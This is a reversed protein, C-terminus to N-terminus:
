MRNGLALKAAAGDVLFYDVFNRTNSEIWGDATTYLTYTDMMFTPTPAVPVLDLIRQSGSAYHDAERNLQAPLTLEASHGQTYTILARGDRLLELIWRYYSRGNMSRLRSEQLVGSRIDAILNVSNQHDSYIRPVAGDDNRLILALVHGMLEGHLITLNRGLLQVVLTAPGTVAATIHRSEKLTTSAPIISGDTGWVQASGASPSRPLGCYSALNRINKEAWLRRDSRSALLDQPGDFLWNARMAQVANVTKQWNIKQVATWNGMRRPTWDVEFVLVGNMDNRWHGMDSLRRIGKSRLTRLSNGNANDLEGPRHHDCLSIVHSISVDGLLIDHHDTVRLSLPENMSSIVVHATIWAAPLKRYYRTFAKQLGHGDLPYVCGNIDCTWEALTIRAM